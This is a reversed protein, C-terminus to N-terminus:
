AALWGWSDTASGAHSLTSELMRVLDRREIGPRDELTAKIASGLRNAADAHPELGAEQLTALAAKVLYQMVRGNDTWSEFDRPTFIRMRQGPQDDITTPASAHQGSAAYADSSTAEHPESPRTSNTHNMDAVASMAADTGASMALDAVASMAGDAALRRQRADHFDNVSMQGAYAQAPMENIVYEHRHGTRCPVDHIEIAGLAELERLYPAVSQRKRYGLMEALVAMGPFSRGDERKRNVHALLLAYLAVSQPALGACLVWEPVPTFFPARRGYRIGDDSTRSYQSKSRQPVDVEKQSNDAM